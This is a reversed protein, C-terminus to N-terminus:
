PALKALIDDSVRFNAHVKQVDDQGELLDYLKLAAAASKEDLDVTTTAIRALEASVITVDRAVLAKRVADLATPATSVTAAGEAGFEVDDAGAEVALELFADEGLAGRAVEILGRPEFM